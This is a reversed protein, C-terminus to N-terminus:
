FATILGNEVLTGSRYGRFGESFRRNKSTKLPYLSPVNTSFPNIDPSYLQGRSLPGFNTTSCGFLLEYFNEPTRKDNKSFNLIINPIARIILFVSAVNKGKLAKVFYSLNLQKKFLCKLLTRLIFQLAVQINTNDTLLKAKASNTNM